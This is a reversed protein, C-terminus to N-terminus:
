RTVYKGYDPFRSNELPRFLAGVKATSQSLALTLAESEDSCVCVACM